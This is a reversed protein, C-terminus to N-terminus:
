GCLVCLSLENSESLLPLQFLPEQLLDRTELQEICCKRASTRGKLCLFSM